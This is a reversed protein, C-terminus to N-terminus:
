DRWGIQHNKKRRVIYSQGGKVREKSGRQKKKRRKRGALLNKPSKERGQSGKSTLSQYLAQDDVGEDLSKNV